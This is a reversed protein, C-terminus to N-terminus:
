RAKYATLIDITTLPSGFTPSYNQASAGSLVEDATHAHQHNATGENALLEKTFGTSESSVTVTSGESIYLSGVLLDGPQTPTISGSTPSATATPFTTGIHGDLPSSTAAGSYDLAGLYSHNALPYRCTITLSGALSSASNAMYYQIMARGNSTDEQYHAQTYNGPNVNDSCATTSVGANAFRVIVVILDGPAIAFGTNTVTQSSVSTSGSQAETFKGTLRISALTASGTGTLSIIHPSGAANDTIAVAGTRTGAATPTFTVSITCSAGGAALTAVCTTTDAYDGSPVISTINLTANGTNSLTVSQAASTTSVLQSAFTLSAPNLSVVPAAVAVGTGTLNVSQPSGAANDTITIAGTRTGTATPTFTVNITCNSGAALTAACTTTDAYDGSPVISTINLTANGTNSLTVSQATSTTSVLQSAFTLSTPSLSVIPAAAVGTGTLNVSQPSGAANDTITIAGTQTGTATPTFTVNITCNSGAALTAACTTTDAYNGSPVISMISLTGTGTNSLTVNQATSTTNIPQNGFTLSSASLSVVPTGAALGTGTLSIVHPSGAANDTITVAGTRTGTATPTFTVSITCSAGAVLTAACTTTDAYDGSPVISTINLTASGTNSLTVSQAASTTGVRTGGGAAKFTAIVSTLADTASSTATATQTGTASVIKDESFADTASTTNPSSRADGYGTGATWTGTGNNRGVYAFVYENAATTPGATSVTATTTTSQFNSGSQDLVSSTVLGSIEYIHLHLNNTGTAHVTVTNAGTSPVVAYYINCQSPTGTAGPNEAVALLWSSGLTDTIPPSAFTNGSSSSVGVVMLNNQTVNSGFAAALTTSGRGTAIADQVVTVAPSGFTLSSASLTVVPVPAALGTGTLNVSQPSGSASDTITVAGTRTGTAKPTFTVSITCSAAAALTAACTTTDAYDGSPVISTINLTANGTNSLTVSQATSTTGIQQNGFTLSAPSLSVVPAAAPVGTGTLNVSQPSGAANDTITIAGTRTGTATPTFTVSITCNAGAAVSAGCTNTQAYDGSAVTSTISLSATGTNTLMVAQAASTTNLVQSGFTLSGSSLSVIPATSGTGTLSIQQPSGVASDTITINGSQMGAATPTFTINITCTGNVALTSPSIPCNNTQAYQTSAAISTISLAASGTNSLTVAQSASPTNVLQSPFSLSSPSLTVPSGGTTTFSWLPGLTTGSSNSVTVYWEYRSGPSLNSWTYSTSSGSLVGSNSALLTFNNGTGQMDYNITFNGSSTTEYQNIYPSYTQVQIQNNTPSFTLTRLWGDGGFGAEQYDSLFTYVRNGNYVDARQGEPPTVHGCLMLFVNPNGKLANYTALGQNSWSADFGSNILYHSVVIARRSSYTQLLGNAWALISTLEPGDWQPDVYAMNIVIFEMGGASFLEYHNNNNTGYHGGYYSKSSYRSFGFYQNYGATDDPSGDGAPGQDHNGVGFSYPIGQPLGTATPDDLISVASNANIWESYNGGNNGDQVIDGLGIVFAINQSVRNNVIWQTQSNFMALTGGQLGASYYQTDPLEVITFNPGPTASPIVKGYFNVTLNQSNPDTVNVNLTPSTSVGTVGDAPSNSTPPNPPSSSSQPMPIAASRSSLLRKTGGGRAGRNSKRNAANFFSGTRTKSARTSALSVTPQKPSAPSERKSPKSLPRRPVSEEPAPMHSVGASVPALTPGTSTVNKPAISSTSAGRLLAYTGLVGVVALLLSVALVRRIRDRIM